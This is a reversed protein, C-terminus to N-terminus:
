GPQHREIGHRRTRQRCVLREFFQLADLFLWRRWRWRLGCRQRGYERGPRCGPRRRLRALGPHFLDAPCVPLPGNARGSLAGSGPVRSRAQRCVHVGESGGLESSIIRDPCRSRWNRQEEPPNRRSSRRICGSVLFRRSHRRKRFRQRAVSFLVAFEYTISIATYLHASGFYRFCGWAFTCAAPMSPDFAPQCTPCILPM